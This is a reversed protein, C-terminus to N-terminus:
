LAIRHIGSQLTAFNFNILLSPGLACGGGSVRFVIAMGTFEEVWILSPLFLPPLFPCLASLVLPVRGWISFQSDPTAWQPQRVLQGAGRRGLRTAPWARGVQGGRWLRESLEEHNRWEGKTQGGRLLGRPM